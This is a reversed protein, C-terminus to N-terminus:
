CGGLDPHEITFRGDATDYGLQAGDYWALVQRDVYIRGEVQLDNEQPEELALGM